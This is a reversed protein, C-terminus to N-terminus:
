AAGGINVVRGRAQRLLPLLAQTVAVQGILNVEFQRRLAEIPVLEVPGDVSLGANNVLGDLGRGALRRTIEDVARAVSVADTIDLEILEGAPAADHPRQRVAAFVRWGLEQLRQVTQRGVGGAAGTVLVSKGNSM